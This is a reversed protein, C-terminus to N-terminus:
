IEPFVMWVTMLTAVITSSGAAKPHYTFIMIAHHNM